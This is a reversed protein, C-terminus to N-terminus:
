IKSRLDLNLEEEVKELREKAINFYKEEKEIGIFNRNTRLCAEGTSGSGMCNDLVTMNENTYIKILYGLLAVPKQTPHLNNNDKPYELFDPIYSAGIPLNFIKQSQTKIQKFKEYSLFGPMLNIHYTDILSQYGKQTIFQKTRNRLFHDVSQGCKKIITKKDDKIWERVRERYNDYEENGDSYEKFFVDINECFSLPAKKSLYPNAFNNKKWIYSYHYIINSHSFTRLEETLPSKSFLLLAGNQRLLRNYQEFLKYTDLPVDWSIDINKNKWGDSIRDKLIGYPLDCLIMDISKNPINKMVEICDGKYIKYNSM